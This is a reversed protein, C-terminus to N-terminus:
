LYEVAVAGTFVEIVIPDTPVGAGSNATAKKVTGAGGGIVRDGVAPATYGAATPVKEKFKRAVSAVRIGLVARNEAVYVRGMIADGDGALKVTNTAATDWATVKGAADAVAVDTAAVGSLAYTFTFNGFPFGHSVLGAPNYTPM